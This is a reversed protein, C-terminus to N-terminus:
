SIAEENQQETSDHLLRVGLYFTPSGRTTRQFGRESMATGFSRQSVERTGTAECWGRYAKYLDGARVRVTESKAPSVYCRDALFQALVDEDRRYDDTAARVAEPAQLGGRQWALCGDVIWRLIGPGEAKLKDLLEPDREDEPITVTFPVLQLRRWIGLDTGRVRPRHNTSMILKHTPQFTFEDCRMLRANISDGGTLQKVQVEALARGEETESTVALRRGHLTARETPHTDSSKAMLLAPNTQIAYDGLAFKVTEVVTTKSNAGTGWFIVIVHERIAGTAAYGFFRQVFARVDPDPLARELVKLWTPAVAGALYPVAAIKSMLAKRDHPLLNGTRLDVVGNVVNLLWPDADLENVGIAIGPESAALAVMAERAARSESRTAWKSLDKRVEDDTAEAAERYIRRVTEKAMAYARRRDDRAWRRGDWALWGLSASWRLDGGFIDVLREANGTETLPRPGRAAVAQDSQDPRELKEVLLYGAPVRANRKAQAVKHALEKESWPPSCRGNYRRLVELGQRESLDFGRVAALAARWTQDHGGEGSVAGPIKAVYAGARLVNAEPADVDDEPAPSVSEAAKECVLDLLWEPAEELTSEDEDLWEYRNGSVHVSPAVVVYGGAGKVDLGPGLADKRSVVCRGHNPYLFAIHEGAHSGSRARLSVPLPGYKAELLELTIHGGNRDDRDVVFVDSEPGTAMALGATPRRTYWAMITPEDTTADLHGNPVLPGLPHKGPSDCNRGKPCTCAGACPEWVPFVRKGSRALALAARLPSTETL